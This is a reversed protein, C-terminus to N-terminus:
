VTEKLSRQAKKEDRTLRHWGQHLITVLLGCLFALSLFVPLTADVIWPLPWLRVSVPVNNQSAFVIFLALFLWAVIRGVM